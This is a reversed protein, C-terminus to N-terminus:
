YDDGDEALSQYFGALSDDPGSKKEPVRGLDELFFVEITKDGYNLLASHALMLASVIDDHKGSPASYTLAGTASTKVEYADMESVLAPWKPLWIQKQEVSTILRAVMDSKSQNTFTVGRYAFPLSSMADDIAGGVGTKDHLIIEVNGFSAAFLSLRRIAETYPLRHFREFGCVRRSEIEIAIFVCYDLTKAWDVGIVVARSQHGEMLWRQRDGYVDIENGFLCDRTGAFVSGSDMFEALFFQRYLRDPLERRASEIVAPNITPNDLTRATIFIKEPTKGNRLAWEQHEKAEMCQHYFWNKGLPTSCILMPGETRTTTTRASVYTQPHCKAAEDIIYSNIAKGELSYPDKAHWFEIQTELEPLEILMKGPRIETMPPPPLLRPFYDELGIKAQEYIPAVWRHKTQRSQVALTAQASAAALTKGFKTGAAVYIERLGPILFAGMILAQKKSHPRPPEITVTHAAKM